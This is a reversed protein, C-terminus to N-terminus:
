RAIGTPPAIDPEIVETVSDGANDPWNDHSNSQTAAHEELISFPGASVNGNETTSGENAEVTTTEERQTSDHETEKRMLSADDALWEDFRGM